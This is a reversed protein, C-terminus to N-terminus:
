KKEGNVRVHIRISLLLLFSFYLPGSSGYIPLRARVLPLNGYDKSKGFKEVVKQYKKKKLIHTENKDKEKWLCIHYSPTVSMKM